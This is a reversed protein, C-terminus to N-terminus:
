RPSLRILYGDRYYLRFFTQNGPCATANPIGHNDQSTEFWRLFLFANGANEAGCLQGAGDIMYFYEYRRTGIVKNLPDIPTQNAFYGNDVLTRLFDGDRSQDTDTEGSNVDVDFDSNHTSPYAGHDEYFMELALRINNMDALRRSDRASARSRSLNTLAISALLAIISIVVLLEILTFGNKKNNM